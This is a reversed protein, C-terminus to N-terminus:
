YGIDQIAEGNPGYIVELYIGEYGGIRNQRNLTTNGIALLFAYALALHSGAEPIPAILPVALIGTLTMLDVLNATQCSDLYIRIVPPQESITYVGNERKCPKRDSPPLGQGDSNLLDKNTRANHPSDGGSPMLPDDNTLGNGLMGSPDPYRMPNNASCSYSNMTQTLSPLGEVPDESLFRGVSPDYMRAHFDYLKTTPDYANSLYQYPQTSRGTRDVVNGFAEYAYTDTLSGTPGSLGVVSGIADHHYYTPAGTGVRRNVLQQGLGRAYHIPTAM